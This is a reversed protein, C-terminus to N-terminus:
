YWFIEDVWSKNSPSRMINSPKNVENKLEINEVNNTENDKIKLKNASIAAVKNSKKNGIKKVNSSYSFNLISNHEVENLEDKEIKANKDKNKAKNQMLIKAKNEINEENIGCLMFINKVIWVIVSVIRCDNMYIYLEKMNSSQLLNKKCMQSLVFLSLGFIGVFLCVFGIVHENVPQKLYVKKGSNTNTTILLGFVVM